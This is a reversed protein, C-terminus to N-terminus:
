DAPFGLRQILDRAEDDQKIERPNFRLKNLAVDSVM